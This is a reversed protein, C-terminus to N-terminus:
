RYLESFCTLPCKLRNKFRVCVMRHKKSFITFKVGKRHKKVADRLRERLAIEKREFKMLFVVAAFRIRILSQPDVRM